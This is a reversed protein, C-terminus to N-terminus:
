GIAHSENCSEDHKKINIKALQSAQKPLLYSRYPGVLRSFKGYCVWCFIMFSSIRLATCLYRPSLWDFTQPESPCTGSPARFRPRFQGLTQTLTTAKDTGGRPPPSTDHFQLSHNLLASLSILPTEKFPFAVNERLRNERPTCSAHM